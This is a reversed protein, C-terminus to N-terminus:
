CSKPASSSRTTPLGNQRSPKRASANTPGGGCARPVPAPVASGHRTRRRPAHPNHHGAEIGSGMRGREPQRLRPSLLPPVFLIPRSRAAQRRTPWLPHRERCRSLHFLAAHWWVPLSRPRHPRDGGCRGLRQWCHSGSLVSSATGRGRASQDVGGERRRSDMAVRWVLRSAPLGGSAASECRHVSHIGGHRAGSGGITGIWFWGDYAGPKESIMQFSPSNKSAWPQLCTSARPRVPRTGDRGAAPICGPMAM